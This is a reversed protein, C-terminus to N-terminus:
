LFISKTRKEMVYSGDDMQKGNNDGKPASAEEEWGLLLEPRFIVYQDYLNAMMSSLQFLKMGAAANELYDRIRSFDKHALLTPLCDMIRLTLADKEFLAPQTFGPLIRSFMDLVFANPFPWRVNACIGSIRAMGMSLWRQMGRSQVVIVEPTLPSSLPEAL